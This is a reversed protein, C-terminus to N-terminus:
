VALIRVLSVLAEASQCLMAFSADTGSIAEKIRLEFKWHDLDLSNSLAGCLRRLRKDVQSTEASAIVDIGRIRHARLLFLQTAQM